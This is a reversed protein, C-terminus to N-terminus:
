GKFHRKGECSTISTSPCSITLERLQVPSSVLLCVKHSLRLLLKIEGREDGSLSTERPPEKERFTGWRRDALLFTQRECAICVGKFLRQLLGSFMLKLSSWQCFVYTIPSDRKDSGLTKGDEEKRRDEQQTFESIILVHRLMEIKM